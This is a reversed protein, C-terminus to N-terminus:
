GNKEWISPAAAKTSPLSVDSVWRELWPEPAPIDELQVGMAECLESVSVVGGRLKVFRGRVILSAYIEGDVVARNEFYMARDDAAIVATEVIFKKRLRLSKRYSITANGVVTSWGNATLAEWIGSRIFFDFRGLDFLSLYRGNNMHGALDLDTLLTTLQIRGVARLSLRGERRLRRLSARRQLITRWIVNM